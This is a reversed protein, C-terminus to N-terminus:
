SLINLIHCIKPCFGMRELKLTMSSPHLVLYLSCVGTTEMLLKRVHTLCSPFAKEAPKDFTLRGGVAHFGIKEAAKSIGLMSVGERGIFCNDRLHELAYRKGYARCDHLYM